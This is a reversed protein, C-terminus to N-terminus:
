SWRTPKDVDSFDDM